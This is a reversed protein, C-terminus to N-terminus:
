ARQTAAYEAVDREFRSWDVTPVILEDGGKPSPARPPQDDDDGGGGWGGWGGWGGPGGFGPWGGSRLLVTAAAVTVAGAIVILATRGRAPHGEVPRDATGTPRSLAVAAGGAVAAGAFAFLALAGSSPDAGSGMLKSVGM